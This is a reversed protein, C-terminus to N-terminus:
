RSIRILADLMEDTTTIVRADASYARQIVIMKTFEEALDVNAGELSSPAIMGAGGRGADRPSFEGSAATQGYVNGTRPDLALPNAFTAIPLKCIKQTAGKTFSAAVYEDHDITVGNLEGVETGNQIVFLHQLRELASQSRRGHRDHWSRAHRATTRGAPTSGTSEAPAGAVAAPYTPTINTSALTGNGNFTVTGSALLGDPHDGLEVEARDAYVQVNWTNAAPDAPQAGAGAAQAADAHVPQPAPSCCRSCDPSTALVKAEPRARPPRAPPCFRAFLPAATM